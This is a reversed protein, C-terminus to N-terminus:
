EPLRTWVLDDRSILCESLISEAEHTLILVGVNRGITNWADRVEEEGEAAVIEVGALSLGEIRERKGIAVIRSM